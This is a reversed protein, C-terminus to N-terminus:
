VFFFFVGFELSHLLKPSFDPPLSCCCLQLIGLGQSKGQERWRKECNLETRGDALLGRAWSAWCLRIQLVWTSSAWRWHTWLNEWGPWQEPQQKGAQSKGLQLVREVELPKKWGQDMFEESSSQFAPINPTGIVQLSWIGDGASLARHNNPLYNHIKNHM